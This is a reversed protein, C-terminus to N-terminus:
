SVRTVANNTAQLLALSDPGDPQLLLPMRMVVVAVQGISGLRNM